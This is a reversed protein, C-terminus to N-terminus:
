RNLLTTIRLRGFVAEVGKTGLWKEMRRDMREYRMGVRLLKHVFVNCRKLCVQFVEVCGGLGLAFGHGGLSSVRFLFGSPGLLRLVLHTDNFRIKRTFLSFVSRRKQM